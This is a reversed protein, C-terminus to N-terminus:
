PVARDPVRKGRTHGMGQDDPPKRVRADRIRDSEYVMDGRVTPLLREWTADSTQEGALGVRKCHGILYEDSFTCQVDLMRTTARDGAFDHLLELNSPDLCIILQDTEFYDFLMRM